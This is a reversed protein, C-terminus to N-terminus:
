FPKGVFPIDRDTDNGSLERVPVFFPARYTFKPWRDAKICQEASDRLQVAKPIRWNESPRLEHRRQPATPRSIHLRDPDTGGSRRCCKSPDKANGYKDRSRLGSRQSLSVGPRIYEDSLSVQDHQRRLLPSKVAYLTNCAGSPM